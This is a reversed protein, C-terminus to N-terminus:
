AAKSRIEPILTNKQFQKIFDTEAKNNISANRSKRAQVLNGKRDFEMTIYPEDPEDAKRMFFIISSGAIVRDAYSAVCHHMTSGEYILENLSHPFRILYEESSMNVDSYESCKKAFASKRVADRRARYNASVANHLKVIDKPFKEFPIEMQRCMRIYDRQYRLLETKRGYRDYGSVLKCVERFSYDGENLFYLVKKTALLYRPFVARYREFDERSMNPVARYLRKLVMMRKDDMQKDTKIFERIFSPLRVINKENTADAFLLKIRKNVVQPSYQMIDRVIPGYGAKVGQELQPYKALYYFYQIFVKIDIAEKDRRKDYLMERLGNGPYVKEFAKVLKQVYPEALPMRTSQLHHIPKAKKGPAPQLELGNEKSYRIHYFPEPEYEGTKGNKVFEYLSFKVTNNRVSVPGILCNLVVANHEKQYNGSYINHCKPCTIKGDWRYHNGGFVTGCESCILLYNGSYSNEQPVCVYFFKLECDHRRLYWCNEKAFPLLLKKGKHNIIM